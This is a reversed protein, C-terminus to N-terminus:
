RGNIYEKDNRIIFYDMTYREEFGCSKYLNLANKNDTLVQLFISEANNKMLEEIALSLIERGYGLGRYEPLVGLGYIGGQKNNIEIRVKGIAGDKNEAMYTINKYIGGDTEINDEEIFEMNFYISNQRSIESADDKTVKRLKLRNYNNGQFKHNNLLMDYESHAYVDCVTKIFEIGASSDHDSLLLMSSSKRKKWEDHALSFLKKFVGMMRYEPHVMGNVEIEEGGFDCIGLYGILEDNNFYMFENINVLDMGNLKGNSLKYDLELKLSTKDHALCTNELSKINKYDNHDITNKLKISPNIINM